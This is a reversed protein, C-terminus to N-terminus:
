SADDVVGLLKQFVEDVSGGAELNTLMNLNEYYGVLPSTHGEYIRIRQVQVIPDDDARAEDHRRHTLRDLVSQECVKFYVVRNLKEGREKLLKELAEAQPITRPFGDLIVGHECDSQKLREAILAIMLEDSVYLGSELIPQVQRGLETDAAVAARLMEGTSIHAYGRAQALKKAQTGKGAGPPGLFILIM